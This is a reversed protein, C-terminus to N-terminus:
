VGFLLPESLMTLSLYLSLEQFTWAYFGYKLKVQLNQVFYNLLFEKVKTTARLQWNLLSIM